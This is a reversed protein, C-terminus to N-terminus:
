RVLVTQRALVTGNFHFQISYAGPVPFRCELLKFTVGHSLSPDKGEFSIPRDASRFIPQNTEENVCVIRGTGAGRGDTLILLVVLKELCLPSTSGEPWRLLTTLGVTMIKGPREPDLIVEDCVIMYRVIPPVANSM